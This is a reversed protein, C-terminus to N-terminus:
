LHTKQQCLSQYRLQFQQSFRAHISIFYLFFFSIESQVIVGYSGVITFSGHLYTSTITIECTYLGADALRLPFLILTSTGMRSENGDKTWQYHTIVADLNQVGGVNSSLTYNAGVIAIGSGSINM